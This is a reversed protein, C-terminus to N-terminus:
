TSGLYGWQKLQEVITAAAQQPPLEFRQPPTREVEAGTLQRLRHLPSGGVPAPLVRPRPRWPRVLTHAAAENAPQGTSDHEVTAAAAVLSARLTARRLRACSGEVSIVAPGSVCLHERRGGDLRRTVNLVGREPSTVQVLGLAQSRNGLHALYAPVAGSGRDLSYDGCVILDAEALCDHLQQAIVWSDAQATAEIHVARQAGVALAQRLLDDCSGDTATAVTISAGWQEGLQLAIELAAADAPSAGFWREDDHVTGTARDLEPRVGVWKLCVAVNM